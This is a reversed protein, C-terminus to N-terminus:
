KLAALAAEYDPEQTIESSLAAYKVKGNPEIIVIARALLGKLVGDAIELAYDRGFNENRFASLTEVNEIGEAACFRGQAFPLDKSICLVKVNPIKAALENFKRVTMACVGTDISPFINLMLTNESKGCFVFESLDKRVLTFCPATAGKSIFERSLKCPKDQFKTIM